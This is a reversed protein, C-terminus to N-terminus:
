SPRTKSDITKLNKLTYEILEPFRETHKADPISILASPKFNWKAIIASLHRTHTSFILPIGAAILKSFGDHWIRGDLEFAGLEDIVFLDPQHILANNILNNGALIGEDYIKFHNPWPQPPFRRKMFPFKEQSQINQLHYLDHPLDHLALFGQANIGRAHLVTIVNQLFTTKGSNKDGSVAFVPPM